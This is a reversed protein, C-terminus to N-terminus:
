LGYECRVRDNQKFEAVSSLVFDNLLHLHLSFNSCHESKLTIYINSATTNAPVLWLILLTLTAMLNTTFVQALGNATM